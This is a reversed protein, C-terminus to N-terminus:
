AGTPAATTLATLRQHRHAATDALLRAPHDSFDHLAVMASLIVDCLEAAVDGTSHSTGKRPNQGRVGIYAQAAEGAEETVKLLRLATEEPGRGNRDDLWAKVARIHAWPEALDANGPQHDATLYVRTRAPDAAPKQRLTRINFAAPLANVVQDTDVNDCIIRIEFM